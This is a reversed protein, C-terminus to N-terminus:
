MSSPFKLFNTQLPSDYYPNVGTPVNIMMCHFHQYNFPVLCDFSEFLSLISLQFQSCPQIRVPYISPCLLSFFCGNLSSVTELYVIYIHFTAHYDWCLMEYRGVLLM